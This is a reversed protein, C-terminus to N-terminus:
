CTVYKFTAKKKSRQNIHEIAKEGVVEKLIALSRAREDDGEALDPAHDSAEDSFILM